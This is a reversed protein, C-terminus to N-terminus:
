TTSIQNILKHIILIAFSSKYENLDDKPKYQRVRCDFYTLNKYPLNKYTKTINM